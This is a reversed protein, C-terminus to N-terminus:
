QLDCKQIFFRLQFKCRKSISHLGPWYIIEAEHTSRGEGMSVVLSSRSTPLRTRKTYKKNASAKMREIKERMTMNERNESTEVKDHYRFAATQCLKVIEQEELAMQLAVLDYVRYSIKETKAKYPLGRHSLYKVSHPSVLQDTQECIRALFHMAFKEPVCPDEVRTWRGAFGFTM